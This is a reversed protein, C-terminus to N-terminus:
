PLVRAGKGISWVVVIAVMGVFSYALVWGADEIRKIVSQHHAIKPELNLLLDHIETITKSMGNDIRGKVHSVDGKIEAMTVKIDSFKEICEPLMQHDEM